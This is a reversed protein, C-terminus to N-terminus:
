TGTGAMGGAGQLIGTDHSTAEMGPVGTRGQNDGETGNRVGELLLSSMKTLHDSHVKLAGIAAEFAAIEHGTRVGGAQEMELAAKAQLELIKASNVRSEEQLKAVFMMKDAELQLKKGELKAQEVQLKPNPLPPTKDPGLYVEEPSDVRLARLYRKEVAELSYGPTTHAAQKLAVAQNIRQSESVIRPDAAPVVCAPDGIYDERLAYAGGQGYSQKVPLYISNLTYRKKFTERMSRWIRKFVATYIKGGQELMNRSTEAPTNQGTSEGVMTDTTGTIRNTYEILLSLLQLLVSSPERVPLPYISKHLDDGTCDVRKWEQPAFTYAGGRIKAGRGLFGGGSNAMTGADILQNILSNVSENLPGTLIGLGIGRHGGDPSPIFTFGTFYEIPRISIIQGKRSGSQVREIDEERDFRTVIRLVEKSTSDFTIIYPEAYGDNDLDLACHQELLILPTTEDAQPQNIGNRQDEALVSYPQRPQTNTLYWAEELVDRFTGRLVREYIENRYMPIIHTKRACEEVSKAWYDIVLDKAQVLTDTIHALSSDFRTKIYNSGVAALNILLRDYQEEWSLDEELVQYSMHTSIRNARTMKKGEPDEGIVRSKVIETGDIITPYARAHFQLVAITILPFQVNSCDAWPFSKAKSTQLALDMASDARRRWTLMSREDRDYGDWCELGIKQLDSESFKDCLNPSQLTEPTLTLYSDLHLMTTNTISVNAILFPVVASVM